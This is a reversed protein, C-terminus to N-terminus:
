KKTQSIKWLILKQAYEFVLSILPHEPAQLLIFGHQCLSCSQGTTMYVIAPRGKCSCTLKVMCKWTGWFDKDIQLSSLLQRTIALTSFLSGILVHNLAKITAMMSVKPCYGRSQCTAKHEEQHLELDQNKNFLM